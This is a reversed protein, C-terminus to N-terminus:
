FMSMGKTVLREQLKRFAIMYKYPHFGNQKILDLVKRDFEQSLYKFDDKGFNKVLSDSSSSLFQFRVTFILKNVNLSIYKKQDM